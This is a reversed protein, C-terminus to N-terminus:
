ESLVFTNATDLHDSNAILMIFSGDDLTYTSSAIPEDGFTEQINRVLEDIGASSSMVQGSTITANEGEVMGNSSDASEEGAEMAESEAQGSSSVVASSSSDASSIAASVSSGGSEEVSEESGGLFLLAIVVAAIVVVACIVGVIIPLSSRQEASMNEEVVRSPEPAQSAFAAESLQTEAEVKQLPVTMDASIVKEGCSTCFKTGEPLEQGCKECFM